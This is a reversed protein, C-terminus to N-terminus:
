GPSSYLKYKGVRNDIIFLPNEERLYKPDTSSFNTAIDIDGTKSKLNSNLLSNM